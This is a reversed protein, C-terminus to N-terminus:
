ESRLFLLGVLFPRAPWLAEGCSSERVAVPESLCTSLVGGNGAPAEAAVVLLPPFLGTPEPVVCGAFARVRHPAAPRIPHSVQHSQVRAATIMASNPTSMLTNPLTECNAEQAPTQGPFLSDAPLRLLLRM